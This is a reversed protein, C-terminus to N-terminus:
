TLDRFLGPDSDICGGALWDRAEAYMETRKNAWEKSTSKGGFWVENVRYKRDRLVDIVGTGNGADINVADPNTKDIWEAVLNAVEITDRKRVKIPPISRADRGQRFRIVTSDDGYRAIDVGMILAALPDAVLEREQAAQVLDN